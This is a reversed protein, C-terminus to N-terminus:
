LTLSREMTEIGCAANPSNCSCGTETLNASKALKLAALPMLVTAVRSFEFLKVSLILKLAALPMLVTAVARSM